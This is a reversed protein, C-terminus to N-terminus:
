LKQIILNKFYYEFMIFISWLRMLFAYGCGSIPTTQMAQGIHNQKSCWQLLLAPYLWCKLPGAKCGGGVKACERLCYECLQHSIQLYHHYGMLDLYM